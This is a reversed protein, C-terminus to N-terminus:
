NFLFKNLVKKFLTFFNGLEVKDKSILNVTDIIKDDIKLVLEGIVQNEKVPANIFQPINIVREIDKTEDKKLLVYSDRALILDTYDKKGKEIDLKSIVDGKKGIFVSKYNSFGYDLLTKADKLRAKDNDAKLVVAILQLDDRKASASVCYKAETTYGTKIGNAGEYEKILRNTNVMTQTSRKSKGVELDEMYIKLYDHIMEHKLLERSMISIDTATTYHDEIPLGTCNSFNTSEMGLSRAKENMLSVFESETGGIYEALAVSADNASRVSIAKILSDVSQVEGKDLYISTGRTGSANESITVKDDLKIKNNNLSEIVLILTMIKTISAPALKENENKSYLINGTNYDLLIASHCNLDLSAFVTTNALILVLIILLSVIKKMPNEEM